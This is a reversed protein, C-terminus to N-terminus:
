VMLHKNLNCPKQICKVLASPNIENIIREGVLTKKKGIDDPKTGVYRNLNTEDIEEDDILTFDKVGLYALQQIVHTGLGGIGVIAVSTESLKKQGDAGFFDIQRVFRENNM